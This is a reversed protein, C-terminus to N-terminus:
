LRQQAGIGHFLLEMVRPLLDVFPGKFKRRIAATVVVQLVGFYFLAVELYDKGGIDGPKSNAKLWKVFADVVNATIEQNIASAPGSMVMLVAFVGERWNEAMTLQRHVLLEVKQHFTLGEPVAVNLTNVVIENLQELLGNQIAEKSDFYNYLTGVTYGTEKAIDRLTVASLGTQAAARAAAQLIENRIHDLQTEKRPTRAM